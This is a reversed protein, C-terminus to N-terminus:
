CLATHRLRKVIHSAVETTEAAHHSPEERSVDDSRAIHAAMILVRTLSYTDKLHSASMLHQSQRSLVSIDKVTSEM